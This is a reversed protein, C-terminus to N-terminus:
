DLDLDQQQLTSTADVTEEAEGPVGLLKLQILLPEEGILLHVCM